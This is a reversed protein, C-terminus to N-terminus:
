TKHAGSRRGPNTGPCLGVGSMPPWATAAVWMCFLPLKAVSTVEPDIKKLFFIFLFHKDLKKKDQVSFEPTLPHWQLGHM